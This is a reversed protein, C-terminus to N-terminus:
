PPLNDALPTQIAFFIWSRENKRNRLPRKPRQFVGLWIPRRFNWFGDEDKKGSLRLSCSMNAAMPLISLCGALIPPSPLGCGRFSARACEADQSFSGGGAIAKGVTGRGSALTKACGSCACPCTWTCNICSLRWGSVGTLRDAEGLEITIATRHRNYFDDPSANPQGDFKTSWTVGADQQLVLNTLM